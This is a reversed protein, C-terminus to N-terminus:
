SPYFTSLKPTPPAEPALTGEGAGAGRGVGAGWAAKVNKQRIRM